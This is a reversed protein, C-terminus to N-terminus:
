TCEGHKVGKASILLRTWSPTEKETKLQPTLSDAMSRCSSLWLWLFLRLLRGGPRQPADNMNAGATLNLPLGM